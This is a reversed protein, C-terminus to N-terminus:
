PGRALCRSARTAVSRAVEGADRALRLPCRPNGRAGPANADRVQRERATGSGGVEKPPQRGMPRVKLRGGLVAADLAESNPVWFAEVHSRPSPPRASDSQERLEVAGRGRGSNRAKFARHWASSSGLITWRASGGIVLFGLGQEDICARM